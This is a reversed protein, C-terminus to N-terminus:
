LEEGDRRGDGKEADNRHHHERFKTDSLIQLTPGRRRQDTADCGRQHDTGRESGVLHALEEINAGIM